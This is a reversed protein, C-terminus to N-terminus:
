LIQVKTFKATVLAWLNARRMNLTQFRGKDILLCLAVPLLPGLCKGLNNLNASVNDVLVTCREPLFTVLSSSENTPPPPKPWAVGMEPGQHQHRYHGSTWEDIEHDYVIGVGVLPVFAHAAIILCCVQQSSAVFMSGVQLLCATFLAEIIMGTGKLTKGLIIQTNIRNGQSENRCQRIFHRSLSRGPSRSHNIIRTPTAKGTTERIPKATRRSRTPRTTVRTVQTGM